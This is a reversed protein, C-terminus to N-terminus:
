HSDRFIYGLMLIGEKKLPEDLIVVIGIEDNNKIATRIGKELKKGNLYTGNTSFDEIEFVEEYQITYNDNIGAVKSEEWMPFSYFIDDNTNNESNQSSCEEGKKM